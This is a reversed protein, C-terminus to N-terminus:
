LCHSGPKKFSTIIFLSPIGSHIRCHQILAPSILIFENKSLYVHLYICFYIWIHMCAYTFIYAHICMYIPICISVFIFSSIHMHMPLHIYTNGLETWWSPISAFSVGTAFLVGPTWFKTELYRELYFYGHHKLPLVSEQASAPFIRLLGSADYLVLFYLFPSFIPFMHFSVLTLSSTRLSWFQLSKLFYQTIMWLSFYIDM